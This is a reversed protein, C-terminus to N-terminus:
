FLSSQAPPPEPGELLRVLVDGHCRKPRCWCGIRRGRMAELADRLQPENALREKIYREYKDIVENRGGDVGIPFPNAFESAPYGPMARGIYVDYGAKVHVVETKQHM